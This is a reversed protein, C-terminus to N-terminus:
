KTGGWEKSQLIKTNELELLPIPLIEHKGAVFGKSGLVAPAKGWRVLDFWRHGEFALEMKRENIINDLTPAVAHQQGDNFARNRVATILATARSLDGGSVVLAEAEMLYTDALRIEYMNQPFNLPQDGGGQSATSLRGAFKEIFFGTNMYGKEYTVLGATALSDVNAISAQNRPDFHMADFFAKTVPLFSYGSYYDPATPNIRNYNRPGTIVNLINGESCTLCGWTGNSSSTHTIELIAESNFKNSVKWLAAFTPQLNYGYVANLQGPTGNVLNFEAAAETYKKEYLYVKGLLAHATGKTLRGLEADATIRNPLNSEAIADKLDKEIQAYIEAPTVQPINYAQDKAIPTLILPINKFFRVLDFYFYARLLKAEATFRKKLVDDMPVNPLKTLFLNARSIGSYGAKWLEEQPGTSPDLTYTSFVQLPPVDNSGGGGAYAEDSASVTADVKTVFNNGQYGLADYVAVLASFAETGDRYYGDEAFQGRPTVEVFKKCSNLLPLAIALVAIYKIYKKM